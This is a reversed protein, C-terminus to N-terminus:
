IVISDEFELIASGELTLYNDENDIILQEGSCCHIVIPYNCIGKKVALIATALAGTGCANTEAEVGREYTRIKILNNSEYVALNYNSGEHNFYNHNRLSRATKIFDYNKNLTDKKDLWHVIHPVGSNCFDITLNNLIIGTKIIPKFDLFLKVTDNYIKSKIIGINTEILINNKQYNLHSFLRSICRAGNGCMDAESGDPNYFIMKVDAIESKQYLLIGDFNLKRFLYDNEIFFDKNIRPFNFSWDNIVIFENGAGHM